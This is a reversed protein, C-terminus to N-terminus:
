EDGLSLVVKSLDKSIQHADIAENIKLSRQGFKTCIPGGGKLFGM